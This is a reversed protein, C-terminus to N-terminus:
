ENNAIRSVSLIRIWLRWLLIPFLFEESRRWGAMARAFRGAQEPHKSYYRFIPVGHRTYFPCHISDSEYPNAKLSVSSEVAAKIMEDLRRCNTLRATNTLYKM